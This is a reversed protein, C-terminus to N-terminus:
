RSLMIPYKPEGGLKVGKKKNVEVLGNKIRSAIVEREYKAFGTLQNLLLRGEKTRQDIGEEIFVVDKDGLDERILRM